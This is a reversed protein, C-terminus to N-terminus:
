FHQMDWESLHGDPLLNCHWQGSIGPRNLVYNSRFSAPSLFFFLCHFLFSYVILASFYLFDPITFPMYAIAHPRPTWVYTDIHQHLLRSCLCKSTIHQSIVMSVNQAMVPQADPFLAPISYYTQIINHSVSMFRMSLLVHFRDWVNWQSNGLDCDISGPFAIHWLLSGLWRYPWQGILHLGSSIAM